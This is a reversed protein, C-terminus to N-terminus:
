FQKRAFLFIAIILLIFSIIFGLIITFLFPNPIKLMIPLLNAISSFQGAGYIVLIAGVVVSSTAVGILIGASSSIAMISLSTAISQFTSNLIIQPVEGMTFYDILLGLILALFSAIVICTYVALFKSIILQWRKLPRILFLDYVHRDKEHIISVTLMIASLIGALQSIIMASLATVTLPSGPGMDPSLLHFFLTISPLGIWLFLMVKSKYFGKLEDKFLLLFNL